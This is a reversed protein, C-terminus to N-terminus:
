EATPVTTHRHFHFVKWLNYHGTRRHRYFKIYVVAHVTLSFSRRLSGVSNSANCSYLGEHQSSASHITFVSGSFLTHSDSPVSWSYHPGPNGESSCDLEASQGQVVTLLQPEASIPTPSVSCTLLSTRHDSWQLPQPGEPGLELRVECWFHAGHDERSVTYNLSFSEDVPTKQTTRSSHAGLEKHGRYFAVTMKQAPAVAGVKCQLSYLGGFTFFLTQFPHSSCLSISLSFLSQGHVTLSFSRRLSGVSNSTNCSYLGEHQSSASHITFVSGSFLTHSDSPVSWSYHPGPNGKSSCDLEASQGRHSNGLTFDPSFYQVCKAHSECLVNASVNQSRVVPPPQPGEPGLELRVECWFHAGHDERSVTYNLSFSEDVPTKQTTRSSHAGLEKHGRYFAVTMKQAPAVAGVKCQLSYLGGEMLPGSPEEWSLSVTEPPQYVIVNLYERIDSDFIYCIPRINWVELRTVNWIVQCGGRFTASLPEEVRLDYDCSGNCISCTALAPDGFKVVLISPSFEPLDPCDAICLCLNCDAIYGPQCFIKLVMDLFSLGQCN